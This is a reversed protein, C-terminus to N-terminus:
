GVGYFAKCGERQLRKAKETVVIRAVRGPRDVLKTEIITRDGERGVPAPVMGVVGASVARYLRSSKADGPNARAAVRESLAIFGSANLATRQSDAICATVLAGKLKDESAIRSERDAVFSGAMAIVLLVAVWYRRVFNM